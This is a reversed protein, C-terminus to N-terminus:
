EQSMGKTLISSPTSPIFTEYAMLYSGDKLKAVTPFMLKYYEESGGVNLIYESGSQEMNWNKGDTSIISKIGVDPVDGFLYFRYRTPNDLTVGDGIVYCGKGKLSSSTFKFPCFTGIETQTFTIGDQSTAPKSNGNFLNWVSGFKIVVPDLAAGSKPIYTPKGDKFNIGDDSFFVFTMPTGSISDKPCTAYLRYTGDPMLLVEPDVPPLENNKIEYPEKCHKAEAPGEIHLRKYVWTEGGDPSIAVVPNNMMDGCALQVFYIRVNGDKDIMADPVSARDALVKNLRTFKLGDKSKALVIRHYMVPNKASPDIGNCPTFDSTFNFKNEESINISVNKEEPPLEVTKNTNEEAPAYTKNTQNATTQNTVNTNVSKSENVEDSDCINNENVDLCCQNGVQIYPKNCVFSPQTQLYWLIFFIFSFSLILLFIFLSFKMIKMIKEM